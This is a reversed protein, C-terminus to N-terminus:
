LPRRRHRQRLPRRPAPDNEPLPSRSRRRRRRMRQHRPPPRTRPADLQPGQSRRPRRLRGPRSHAVQRGPPAHHRGRGQGLRRRHRAHLRRRRVPQGRLHPRRRDQRPHPGVHLGQPLQPRRLRLPLLADPRRDQGRAQRPGQRERGGLAAAQLRPLGDGDGLRVEGGQSPGGLARRSPSPRRRGTRRTPLRHGAQQRPPPAQVGAARPRLTAGRPAHRHPAATPARGDGGDGRPRRRELRECLRLRRAGRPREPAESGDEVTGDDDRPVLGLRRGAAAPVRCSSWPNERRRRRRLAGHPGRRGGRRRPRGEDRLPDGSDDERVPRHGLRLRDSGPGGNWLGGRAAAGGPRLVARGRKERFSQPVEEKTPTTTKPTTTTARRRTPSSSGPPRLLAQREVRHVADARRRLPRPRFPPEPLRRAADLPDARPGQM